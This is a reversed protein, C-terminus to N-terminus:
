DTADDSCWDEPTTVPAPEGANITQLAVWARNSLNRESVDIQDENDPFFRADDGESLAQELLSLRIAAREAPSTNGLNWIRLILAM